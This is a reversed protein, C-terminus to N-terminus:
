SQPHNKKAQQWYVGFGDESSGLGSHIEVDEGALSWIFERIDLEFVSGAHALEQNSSQLLQYLDSIELPGPQPGIVKGNKDVLDRIVEMTEIGFKLLDVADLERKEIIDGQQRNTKIGPLDVLTFTNILEGKIKIAPNKIGYGLYKQRMNILIDKLSVQPKQWDAQPALHHFAQIQAFVSELIPTGDSDIDYGTQSLSGIVRTLSQPSYPDADAITVNGRWNAAWINALYFSKGVGPEGTVGLIAEPMDNAPQLYHDFNTEGGNLVADVGLLPGLVQTAKIILQRKESPLPQYSINSYGYSKLVEEMNRGMYPLHVTTGDDSNNRVAIIGYEKGGYGKERWLIRVEGKAIEPSAIADVQKIQPEAFVM